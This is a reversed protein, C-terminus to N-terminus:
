RNWEPLVMEVVSEHLAENILYSPLSCLGLGAPAGAYILFADELHGLKGLV